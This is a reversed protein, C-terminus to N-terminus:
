GWNPMTAGKDTNLLPPRRCRPASCQARLVQHCSTGMGLGRRQTSGHEKKALLASSRCRPAVCQARLVQHCSTGMGLGGQQHLGKSKRKKKDKGAQKVSIVVWDQHYGTGISPITKKDTNIRQATGKQEVSIVVWDQHDATRLSPVQRITDIERCNM